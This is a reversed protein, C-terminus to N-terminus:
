AFYYTTSLLVLFNFEGMTEGVNPSNEWPLFGHNRGSFPRKKEGM